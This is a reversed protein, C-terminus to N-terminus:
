KKDEKFHVYLRDNKDCYTIKNMYYDNNENDYIKYDNSNLTELISNLTNILVRLSRM